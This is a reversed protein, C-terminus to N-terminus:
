SAAPLGFHPLCPQLGHIQVSIARAAQWDARTLRLRRTLAPRGRVLHWEIGDDHYGLKRSVRLSAANDEFAASVAHQAGLGEFALHLVAARMQTGIGQGQYRRGLWSGTYVERLVAFDRGGIGQTGVVTGDRVVAFELMWDSPKWSGWRSWHYQLTGRAREQPSADTWAVMFPQVEPDHVGAAALDALADLDNLSPWRLELAPTQLRLDALPWWSSAM